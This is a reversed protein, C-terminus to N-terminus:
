WKWENKDFDNGSEPDLLRDQNRERLTRASEAWGSRLGAVSTIVIAGDRLQIDVEDTLRAEKIMPKPIRVGRSNGIPVLRAKM